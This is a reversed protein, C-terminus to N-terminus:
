TMNLGFSPSQEDFGMEEATKIVWDGGSSWLHINVARGDIMFDQQEIYINAKMM